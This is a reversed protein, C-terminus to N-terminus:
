THKENRKCMTTDKQVTTPQCHDLFLNFKWEQYVHEPANM